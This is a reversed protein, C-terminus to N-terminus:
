DENIQLSLKFFNIYGEGVVLNLPLKEVLSIKLINM